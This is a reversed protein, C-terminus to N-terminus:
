KKRRAVMYPRTLFLSFLLAVLVGITNSIFDDLDGTRYSTLLYQLYEMIGSFIIPLVVAFLAMLFPKPKLTIKFTEFWFVACLTFYMVFHVIKDIEVVTSTRTIGVPKYFTLCLILILTLLTLLYRKLLFKIMRM